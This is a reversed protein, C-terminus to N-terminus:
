KHFLKTERFKVLLQRSPNNSPGCSINLSTIHGWQPGSLTFNSIVVSATFNTLVLSYTGESINVQLTNMCNVETETNNFTYWCIEGSCTQEYLCITLICYYGLLTVKKRLYARDM